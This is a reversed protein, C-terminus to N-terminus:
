EGYPKFGVLVAFEGREKDYYTGITGSTKGDKSKFTSLLVLGNSKMLSGIGADTDEVVEGNNIKALLAEVNSKEEQTLDIDASNYMCADFDYDSKLYRIRSYFNQVYKNEAQNKPVCYYQIENLCNNMDFRYYVFRDAQLDHLSASPFTGDMHAESSYDISGYVDKEAISLGSSNELEKMTSYYALNRLTEERTEKWFHCRVDSAAVEIEKTVEINRDYGDKFVGGYRASFKLTHKGPQTFHVLVSLKGNEPAVSYGLGGDTSFLLEELAVNEGSQYSVTVTFWQHTGIFTRDTAIEGFTGVTAYNTMDEESCSVASLGIIFLAVCVCIEDFKRKM